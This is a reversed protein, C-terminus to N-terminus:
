TALSSLRIVSPPRFYLMLLSGVHDIYYELVSEVLNPIIQSLIPCALELCPNSNVEILWPKLNRDIMFDLGFVEFNNQLKEQDLYNASARIIDTGM